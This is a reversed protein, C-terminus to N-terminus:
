VSRLPNRSGHGGDQKAANTAFVLFVDSSVDLHISGVDGDNVISLKSASHAGNGQLLTQTDVRLFNGFPPLAM